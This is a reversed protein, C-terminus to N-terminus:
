ICILLLNFALPPSVVCSFGPGSMSGLEEDASNYGEGTKSKKSGKSGIRGSKSGETGLTSTIREQVNGLKSGIKTGIKAVRGRSAAHCSLITQAFVCGCASLIWTIFWFPNVKENRVCELELGEITHTSICFVVM